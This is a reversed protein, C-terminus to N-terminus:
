RSREAHFAAIVEEGTRQRAGPHPPLWAPRSEVFIEEALRFRSQDDFLGPPMNMEDEPGDAMRWYLASGCRGCFGREGWDSARHRMVPAGEAFVVGACDVGYEPGGTWRRCMGCHCVHAEESVRAATFGCAGCLCRGTAPGFSM